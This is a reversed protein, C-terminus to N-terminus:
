RTSLKANIVFESFNALILVRKYYYCYPIYSLISCTKYLRLSVEAAFIIVLIVSLFLFNGGARFYKYYTKM